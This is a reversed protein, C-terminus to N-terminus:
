ILRLQRAAPRHELVQEVEYETKLGSTTQSQKIKVLCVLIDGKSFSVLNNEVRHLFEEDKILANITTNGDHLRWKNDEKFALAVISFAAKRTDELITEEEPEPESFYIAEDKEIRELPIDNDRIELGTIGERQLPAVLKSFSKRVGIDTFLALMKSPVEISDGDFEIRVMGPDLQSVRDPKRGRLKKILAFVSIGVGGGTLLIEKLNIAATVESGALLDVFQAGYSQWLELCTEFSGHEHARVRVSVTARDGNLARNAEEFLQGAALLAPALERVDMSGDDLAPGTYAITFQTRTTM